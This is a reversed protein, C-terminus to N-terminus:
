WIAYPIAARLPVLAGSMPGVTMTRLSRRRHGELHVSVPSSGARNHIDGARMTQM